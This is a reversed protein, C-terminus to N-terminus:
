EKKRRNEYTLRISSFFAAIFAVLIIFYNFKDVQRFFSIDILCIAFAITDLYWGIVDYKKINTIYYMVWLCFVNVILIIFLFQLTLSIM